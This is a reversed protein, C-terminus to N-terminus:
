SFEACEGKIILNGETEGKYGYYNYHMSQNCLLDFYYYEM